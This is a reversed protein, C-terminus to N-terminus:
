SFKRSSEKEFWSMIKNVEKVFPQDSKVNHEIESKIISALAEGLEKKKLINGRKNIHYTRKTYDSLIDAVNQDKKTTRELDLSAVSMNFKHPTKDYVKKMAQVLISSSFQDEFQKNARRIHKHLIWRALKRDKNVENIIDHGDAIVFSFLRLKSAHKIFQAARKFKGDGEYPVIPIFKLMSYKTLEGMKRLASKETEGEVFLIFNSQLADLYDLGLKERIRRMGRFPTAYEVLSEGNNKTVLYNNVAENVRVLNPSHTTIFFQSLKSRELLLESFKKQITPHIHIEPEEIFYINDLKQIVIADLLLLMQKEGATLKSLEFYPNLGAMKVKIDNDTDVKIDTIGLYDSANNKLENLGDKDNKDLHRIHCKFNTGYGNLSDNVGEVLEDPITRDANYWHFRLLYNKIENAVEIEFINTSSDLDLILLSPTKEIADDFLVLNVLKNLSQNEELLRTLRLSSQKIINNELKCVLIPVLTKSKISISVIESTIQRDQISVSYSIKRLFNKNNPSAIPIRKLIVQKDATSLGFQIEISIVDPQYDFVSEQVTKSEYERELLAKLLYLARIVNTKGSGNGGTFVNIRNFSTFPKPLKLSNINKITAGEIQM